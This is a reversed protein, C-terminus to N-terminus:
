WPWLEKLSMPPPADANLTVQVNGQQADLTWPHEGANLVGSFLGRQVKLEKCHSNESLLETRGAPTSSSLTGASRESASLFIDGRGSRISVPQLLDAATFLTVPAARGSSDNRIDIPGRVGSIAVPGDANHVRVGDCAPLLVSVHVPEAASGAVIVLTSATDSRDWRASGHRSPETRRGAPGNIPRIRIQPDVGPRVLVTVAGSANSLDLTIPGDGVAPRSSIPITDILRETACGALSAALLGALLLRSLSSPITPSM